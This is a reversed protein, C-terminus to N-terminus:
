QNALWFKEPSSSSKSKHFDLCVNIVLFHTRSINEVLNWKIMYLNSLFFFFLLGLVNLETHTKRWIILNTLKYIPLTQTTTTKVSNFCVGINHINFDHFCALLIILKYSNWVLKWIEFKICLAYCEYIAAIDKWHPRKTFLRETFGHYIFYM